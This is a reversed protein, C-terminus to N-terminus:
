TDFVEEVESISPPSSLSDEDDSLVIDAVEENLLEGVWISSDLISRAKEEDVDMDEMILRVTLEPVLVSQVYATHGRASVLGDQVAMKRLLSSFETMLTESMVRLGRIGYYGPTLNEQSKLLTKNQGAKVKQDFVDRYYSPKGELVRKLFDLQGGIRSRLDHWMIEPYGKDGWAKRASWQKHLRCFKQDNQLTSRPYRKRFDDFLSQDVKEECMPCVPLLSSLDDLDTLPSTSDDLADCMPNNQTLPPDDGDGHDSFLLFEEPIKLVPRQSEQGLHGESGKTKIAKNQRTKARKGPSGDPSSFIPRLRKRASATSEPSTSLQGPIRLSPKKPSLTEAQAPEIPVRLREKAAGRQQRKSADKKSYTKPNNPKGGFIEESQTVLPEKEPTRTKLMKHSNTDNGNKTESLAKSGLSTSSSPRGSTTLNRRAASKEQARKRTSPGDKESPSDVESGTSNPRHKPYKRELSASTYRTFTASGIAGRQALGDDSSDSSQPPADVAVPKRNVTKLLREPQQNRSMGVRRRHQQTQM